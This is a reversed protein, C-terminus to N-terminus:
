APSPRSTLGLRGIGNFWEIADQAKRGRFAATEPMGMHLRWSFSVAGGAFFSDAHQLAALLSRSDM